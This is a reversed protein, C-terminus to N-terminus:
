GGGRRLAIAGTPCVPLCAGCGTCADGDVTMEAVGGPRPRARLARAECADECARCTVGQPELCGTGVVAAADWPPDRELDFVDEPCAEACAGCFTCPASLDLEPRTGRRIAVIGEPCARACAGCGTCREMIRAADTWPLALAAGPGLGGRRGPM